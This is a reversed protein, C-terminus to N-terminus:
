TRMFRLIAILVSQNNVRQRNHGAGAPVSCPFDGCFNCVLSITRCLILVIVAKLQVKDTHSTLSMKRERIMYDEADSFSRVPNLLSHTGERPPLVMKASLIYRSSAYQFFSFSVFLLLRSVGILPILPAVSSSFCLFLAASSM